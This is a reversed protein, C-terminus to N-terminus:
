SFSKNKEINNVFKRLSEKTEKRINKIEKNLKYNKYLIISFIVISISIIITTIM